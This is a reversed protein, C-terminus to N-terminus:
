QTTYPVLAMYRAKKIALALKKQYKLSTGSYYRPVIKNYKTIFKKLLTVNKYDVTNINNAVFYCQRNKYTAM